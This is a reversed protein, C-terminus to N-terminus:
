FGLEIARTVAQVRNKAGFKHFIGRLHLRVTVEEVGLNRGIQKNSLGDRLQLLVDRERPTLRSLEPAVAIRPAIHTSKQWVSDSPYYLGGKSILRIAEIFQLASLTKPIFSVGGRVIMDNLSDVYDAGSIIALGSTCTIARLLAIENSGVMGPMVYDLLVVDFVPHSKITEVVDAFNCVMELEIDPCCHGILCEVSDRFLAHDDALLVRM